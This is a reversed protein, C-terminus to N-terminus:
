HNTNNPMKKELEFTYILQNIHTKLIFTSISLNEINRKNDGILIEM